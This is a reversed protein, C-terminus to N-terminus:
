EENKMEQIRTKEPAPKDESAPHHNESPNAKVTLELSDTMQEMIKPMEHPNGTM